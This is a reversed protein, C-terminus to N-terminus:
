ELNIHDLKKKKKLVILWLQVDMNENWTLIILITLIGHQWENFDDIVFFYLFIEILIKLCYIKM